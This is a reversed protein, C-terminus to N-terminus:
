VAVELPMVAAGIAPSEDAGEVEEAVDEEWDAAAPAMNGNESM